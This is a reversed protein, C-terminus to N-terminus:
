GFVRRKIFKYGRIIFRKIRLMIFRVPYVDCWLHVYLRYGLDTTKVIRNGRKISTMVGIIQEEDIMEGTIDNDGVIWYKGKYVKLIRHLVYKGNRRQFLVADYKKFPKETKEIVVVDIGQRLLPLMSLGRVTYALKGASSIIDSFTWSNDMKM